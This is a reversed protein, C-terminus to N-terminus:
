ALQKLFNGFLPQIRPMASQLRHDGPLLHVEAGNEEGFRVSHQYPILEDSWGHVLAIADAEPEYDQVAFGPVYFASALLFLGRVPVRMAAVAAVYSGMSSGVLVVPGACEDLYAALRDVRAEPDEPLDTYDLSETSHGMAEAQASLAQIKSGNPGSEKGHNFVIRM